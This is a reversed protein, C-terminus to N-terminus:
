DHRHQREIEHDAKGAVLFLVVLLVGVGLSVVMATMEKRSGM